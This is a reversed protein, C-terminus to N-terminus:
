YLLNRSDLWDFVAESSELRNLQEPNGFLETQLCDKSDSSYIIVKYNLKVTRHRTTNDAVPWEYLVGVAWEAM